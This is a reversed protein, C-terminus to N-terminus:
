LRNVSLILVAEYGVQLGLKSHTILGSVDLKKAEVMKLLM